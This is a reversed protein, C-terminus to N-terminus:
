SRCTPSTTSSSWDSRERGPSSRRTTSRIASSWAASTPAPRPQPSRRTSRDGGEVVTAGYARCAALKSMPAGAPVFIECPVGFHPRRVGAGPRPQRRQRRHRRQGRRRRAVRAQEDRRPDQVRRHAPPERGQARRRRRTRESLAASTVVAHAQRGGAARGRAARIDDLTVTRTPREAPGDSHARAPDGGPAPATSVRIPAAPVTRGHAGHTIALASSRSAPNTPLRRRWGAEREGLAMALVRRTAPARRGRGPAAARAPLPADVPGLGRGLDGGLRREDALRRAAPHRQEAMQKPLWNIAWVSPPVTSGSASAPSRSTRRRRRRRRRDGGARPQLPVGVHDRRGLAELPQGRVSTPGCSTARGRQEAGLEVRLRGLRHDATPEPLAAGLTGRGRRHGSWSSASSAPWRRRCGGRPRPGRRSTGRRRRRSSSRPAGLTRPERAAHGVGPRASRASQSAQAPVGTRGSGSPM